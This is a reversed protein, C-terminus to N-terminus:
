CGGLGGGRDLFPAEGGSFEGFEGWFGFAVHAGARVYGVGKDFVEGGGLLVGAGCAFVDVEVREAALVCFLVEEGALWGECVDDGGDRLLM